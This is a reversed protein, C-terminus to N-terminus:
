ELKIKGLKNLFYKQYTVGLREAIRRENKLNKISKDKYDNSLEMDIQLQENKKKWDFDKM